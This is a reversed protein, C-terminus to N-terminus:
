AVMLDVTHQSELSDFVALLNNANIAEVHDGVSKPSAALTQSGKAYMKLIQDMTLAYDCIFPTDIQGNFQATGDPNAGIRFRNAGALAIAIMTTSTGVLRGDLYMKRKIGDVAANDETVVVFHWLGDNVPPGNIADTGNANYIGNSLYINNYTSPMTGWSLMVIAASSVSKFWCGYSRASLAAPLGTDASSLSQASNFSFANGSAGDVGAVSAATGNNTLVVGNSGEDGLSGGSFNHLRLPQAPFDGAVLTAGKRRRHVNLSVRSPISTLTHPIKACYLNLIEDESLVDATVFAEDVRGYTPQVTATAADAFQGGVNIAGSTPFIINNVLATGELVGDVYLRLTAGDATGVVFHWRDDSVDTVGIALPFNSGDTSAGFMIINPPSFGTYMAWGRSASTDKSLVAQATGRKATRFWAGFSGTKVRLPDSGGSDPIYLAQASSGSFQAATSAAGNIGNANGVSGKNLLNRGNGSVDSLDSLNWLGLPASLGMNTFDAATLQRGARIQGVLGVDLVPVATLVALDQGVPGPVGQAGRVSGANIQSGDHKTLILNDGVVDGDIVSAAEIALMRDATLSTVTTM